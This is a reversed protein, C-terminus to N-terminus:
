FDDSSPLLPVTPQKGLDEIVAIIASKAISYTMDAEAETYLKTPHIGENREVRVMEDLFRILDPDAKKAQLAEMYAGLNRQKPEAKYKALLQLVLVEVARM